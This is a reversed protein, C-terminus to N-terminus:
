EKNINRTKQNSEWVAELLTPELGLEKSVSILSKLDKPLCKGDFGRNNKFVLTHMPNVRPDLLWFERAENYNIELKECIDYIENCFAIKTAYFSNEMYKVLEATKSDTIKYNKVPGAIPLYLDILENCVDSPGGFIFFPMEKLDTHFKYPSWYVSEGLYEPSFVIRQKNYKKSLLETTGVAVTSKILIIDTELWSVTEEVQSIDCEGSDLMPTPVCIIGVDCKSNIDNKTSAWKIENANDKISSGTQSKYPDYVYIEYCTSFFEAMAMGVYGHGIIGITKM